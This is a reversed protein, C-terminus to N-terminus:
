LIIIAVELQPSAGQYSYPMQVLTITNDTLTTSVSVYGCGYALSHIAPSVGPVTVSVVITTSVTTNAFPLYVVGFLRSIRRDQRFRPVGNGDNILIGYSM